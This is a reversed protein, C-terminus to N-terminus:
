RTGKTKWSGEPGTLEEKPEWCLQQKLTVESDSRHTGKRSEQTPERQQFERGVKKETEERMNYLCVGM